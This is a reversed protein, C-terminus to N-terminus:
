HAKRDYRHTLATRTVKITSIFDVVNAQAATTTASQLSSGDLGHLGAISELWAAVDPYHTAKGTFDVQGIGAPVLPDSGPPAATTDLSVTLSDLKVGKPTTLSLDSLLGYWLVDSAMAQERAAAAEDILGLVKPVQAYPAQQARLVTGRAQAADLDDQASSVGAQAWAVAAVCLALTAAVAGALVRKLSALRRDQQIEPPLLDVRPVTAWEVRASTVAPAATAAAAVDPYTTM